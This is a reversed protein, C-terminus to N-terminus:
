VFSHRVPLSDLIPRPSADSFPKTVVLMEDSTQRCPRGVCIGHEVAAFYSSGFSLSNTLKPLLFLMANMKDLRSAQDTGNGASM